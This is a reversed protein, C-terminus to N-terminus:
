MGTQVRSPLLYSVVCRFPNSDMETVCLAGTVQVLALSGPNRNAWVAGTERETGSLLWGAENNTM